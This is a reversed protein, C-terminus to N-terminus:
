SDGFLAPIVKWIAEKPHGRGQLRWCQLFQLINSPMVWSVGFINFVLHWIDVTSECHILLHNITEEDKKCLCCRNVLQFGWRKLNDVMLIRGLAVVWLFFAIRPPAKVKWISKSPFSSHEGSQLISYYSKMVFIHRSSPIWVMSDVEQPLPKVAYLLTLFSDLSELEWDHATRIFSPNWLIHPSSLDMYDSV